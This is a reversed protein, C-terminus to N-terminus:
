STLRKRFRREGGRDTIWVDIGARRAFFVLHSLVDAGEEDVSTVLRLDLSLEKPRTDMVPAVALYFRPGAPGTLAGRPRALVRDGDCKLEVLM